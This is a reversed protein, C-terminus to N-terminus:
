LLVDEVTSAQLFVTFLFTLCHSAKDLNILDKAIIKVVSITVVNV